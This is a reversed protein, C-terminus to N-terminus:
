EFERIDNEKFRRDLPIHHFKQKLTYIPFVYKKGQILQRDVVIYINLKKDFHGSVSKKEFKEKSEPIDIHISKRM